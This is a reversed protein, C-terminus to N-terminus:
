VLNNENLLQKGENTVPVITAQEQLEAPLGMITNNAIEMSACENVIKGNVIVRYRMTQNEKIMKVM